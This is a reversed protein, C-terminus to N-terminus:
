HFIGITDILKKAMEALAKIAEASTEININTESAINAIEEEKALIESSAQVQNKTFNKIDDLKTSLVKVKDIIGWFKEEAEDALVTGKEVEVKTKEMQEYTIKIDSQTENIITKISGVSEATRESLKGIESAVVKFGRGEEGARSAEISANLALLNIQSAIENIVVVVDGIAKSKDELIKVSELEENVAKQISKMSDLTKNISKNGLEAFEKTSSAEEAAKTSYEYISDVTESLKEVEISITSASDTLNYSKASIEDMSEDLAISNEALVDSNYKITRIINRLNEIFIDFYKILDGLEGKADAEIKVNLEGHSVRKIVETIETVIGKIEEEKIRSFREKENQKISYYVLMVLIMLTIVSTLTLKINFLRNESILENNYIGEDIYYALKWESDGTTSLTTEILNDSKSAKGEKIINPLGTNRRDYIEIGYKENYLMFNGKDKPMTLNLKEAENKDEDTIILFPMKLLKAELINTRFIISIVGKVKNDMGYFPVSYLIGDTNRVDGNSISTYQTNDCTRMVSSFVAPIDNLNSFNFNPYKNKFYEIQKPYYQYEYEEDEKPSDDGAKEVETDDAKNQLVLSDYMIFPVQGKEYDLGDTVAYIESISVNNALNNYLQQVTTHADESFRGQKVVDEEVSNRNGGQIKRVSPILSITRADEYMYEFTEVLGTQMNKFDTERIKDQVVKKTDKIKTNHDNLLYMYSLLSCILTVVIAALVLKQPRIFNKNM